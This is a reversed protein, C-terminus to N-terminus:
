GEDDSRKGTSRRSELWMATGVLWSMGAVIVTATFSNNWWVNDSGNFVHYVYSFGWIGTLLLTILGIAEFFIRKM